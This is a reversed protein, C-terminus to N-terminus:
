FATGAFRSMGEGLVTYARQEKGFEDHTEIRDGYWQGSGAANRQHLEDKEVTEPGQEPRRAVDRDAIQEAILQVTYSQMQCTHSGEKCEQSGRSASNIYRP